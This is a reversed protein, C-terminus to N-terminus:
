LTGSHRKLIQPLNTSFVSRALVVNAGAEQARQKLEAQVHSVFCVVSSGMTEASAKLKAILPIPKVSTANLDVFIIAPKGLAKALVEAESKLFEVQFGSRKAMDNIKVAFFLDDVVALISRNGTPM